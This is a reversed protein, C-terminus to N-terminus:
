PNEHSFQTHAFPDNNEKQEQKPHDKTETQKVPVEYDQGVRLKTQQNQDNKRRSEKDTTLGDKGDNHEKNKQQQLSM